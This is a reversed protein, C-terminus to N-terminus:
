SREGQRNTKQKNPIQFKLEAGVSHHILAVVHLDTKLLVVTPHSGLESWFSSDLLARSNLLM